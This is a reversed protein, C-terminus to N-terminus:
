VYRHLVGTLHSFFFLERVMSAHAPKLCMQSFAAVLKQHPNNEFWTM